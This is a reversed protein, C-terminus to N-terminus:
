KRGGEAELSHTIGKSNSQKRWETPTLGFRRRFLSNFLSLNRYGCGLAVQRVEEKSTSLLERARLLRLERQRVRASTGFRAKFLRSFQRPSCRCLEALQQVTYNMLESAPLQAILEQFRNAAATLRPKPVSPEVLIDQFATAIIGLLEARHGMGQAQPWSRVLEAFRRAAPDTSPFFRVEGIASDADQFCHQEALTFFGYLLNPDLAFGHCVVENLVSARVLAKARPAVVWVEGEAIPRSRGAGLWYAAGAHLRMLRWSPEADAWEEEAHLRLEALRLHGLNKM